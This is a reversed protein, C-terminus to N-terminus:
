LTSHCMENYIPIVIFDGSIDRKLVSKGHLRNLLFVYDIDLLIKFHKGFM